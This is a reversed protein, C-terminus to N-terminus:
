GLFLPFQRRYWLEFALELISLVSQNEEQFAVHSANLCPEQDLFFRETKATCVIM